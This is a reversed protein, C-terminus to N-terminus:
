LGPGTHRISPLPGGAAPLRILGRKAATPGTIIAGIQRIPVPDFLPISACTERLHPRMMGQRQAAVCGFLKGEKIKGPIHTKESVRRGRLFMIPIVVFGGLSRGRIRPKMEPPIPIFVPM